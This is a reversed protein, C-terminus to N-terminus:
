QGSQFALSISLAETVLVAEQMKSILTPDGAVLTSLLLRKLKPPHEQLRNTVMTKVVHIAVVMSRTTDYPYFVKYSCQCFRHLRHHQTLSLAQSKVQEARYQVSTCVQM